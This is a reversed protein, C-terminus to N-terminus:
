SIADPTPRRTGVIGLAITQLLEVHGRAFLLIPPDFIERLCDVCTAIDPLILATKEGSEESERIEFGRYNVPDLFSYEFSQLVARPPKEKELRLLFRNLPDHAGEIEIFVGQATNSVWGDLQLETALRYVFPRFGVGQVAGRVVIRARERIM